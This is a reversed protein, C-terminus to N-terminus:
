FALVGPNPSLGTTPPGRYLVTGNQTEYIKKCGGKSKM